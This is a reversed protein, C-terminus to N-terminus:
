LYNVQSQESGGRLASSVELTAGKAAVGDGYGSHKIRWTEQEGESGVGKQLM